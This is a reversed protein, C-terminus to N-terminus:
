TKIIYGCDGAFFLCSLNSCLSRSRIGLASLQSAWLVSLESDVDWLGEFVSEATVTENYLVKYVLESYFIKKRSM